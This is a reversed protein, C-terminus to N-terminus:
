GKAFPQAGVSLRRVHDTALINPGQGIAQKWDGPGLGYVRLLFGPNSRLWAKGWRLQDARVNIVVQHGAALTEQTRTVDEPLDMDTFCVREAPQHAAYAARSLRGTGSLCFVFKGLLAALPPWGHSTDRVARVLDPGSGNLLDGPTFVRGAMVNTLYADLDVAFRTFPERVSKLDLVVFLPDHDPLTASLGRLRELYKALPWCHRGLVEGEHSVSWECGHGGDLPVCQYLDLEFGRCGAAYQAAVDWTAPNQPKEDPGQYSNHSAKFCVADYLWDLYAPVAPM